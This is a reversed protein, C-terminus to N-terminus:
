GASTLVGLALVRLALGCAHGERRFRERFDEDAALHDHLLKVAVSRALVDDHARWVAAMGGAPM